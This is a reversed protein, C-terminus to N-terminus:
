YATAKSNRLEFAIPSSGTALFDVDMTVFDGGVAVDVNSISATAVTVILKITGSGVTVGTNLTLVLAITQNNTFKTKLFIADENFVMKLKGEAKFQGAPMSSLGGTGNLRIDDTFLNNSMNLSLSQIEGNTVADLTATGDNFLFPRISGPTLVNQKTVEFNGTGATTFDIAAGGSTLALQFDDTAPTKIFYITDETLPAPLTATGVRAIKVEDDAAYGHTTVTIKDTTTNVNASTFAKAQDNESIFSYEATGTVIAKAAVELAVSNVVAGANRYTKYGGVGTEITWSPLSSANLMTFTHGYEGGGITAVAESGMLGKLFYGLNDADAEFPVSLSGVQGTRYFGNPARSGTHSKSEVTDYKLGGSFGTEKVYATPAVATGLTTEKGITLYNLSSTKLKGAM